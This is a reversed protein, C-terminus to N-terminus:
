KVGRRKVVKFVLRDPANGAASGSADAV